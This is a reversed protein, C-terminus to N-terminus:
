MSQYTGIFIFSSFEWFLFCPNKNGKLFWRYLRYLHFIPVYLYWFYFFFLLCPPYMDTLLFCLTIMNNVSPFHPFVCLLIRKWSLFLLEPFVLCNFIDMFILASNQVFIFNWLSVLSIFGENHDSISVLKKLTTFWVPLFILSPLSLQVAYNVFKLYMYLIKMCNSLIYEKWTRM